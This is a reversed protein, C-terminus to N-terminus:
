THHSAETVTSSSTSVNFLKINTVMIFIMRIVNKSCKQHYILKGTKLIKLTLPVREVHAKNFLIQKRCKWVTLWYDTAKFHNHNLNITFEEPKIKFLPCRFFLSQATVNSCDNLAVEVALDKGDREM